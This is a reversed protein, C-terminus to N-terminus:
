RAGDGGKLDDQTKEAHCPTCLGQLNSDDDRGGKFLPVIHDLETWLRVVGRAECRVCLPRTRQWRERREQLRRGAIRPTEYRRATALNALPVSPKLTTLKM